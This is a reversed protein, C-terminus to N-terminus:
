SSVVGELQGALGGAQLRVRDGVRFPRAALLLMGAFVNGLTGQAALGVVVATLAGGLVVQRPDLGGVAFAVLLAVILPLLRILFRVGGATAPELRGFLVPSVAQGVDRAFWWGLTVLAIACAVRVPKDAGFWQERYHYVLLVAALLPLLLAVERRAKKARERLRRGAGRRM